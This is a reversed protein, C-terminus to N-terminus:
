SSEGDQNSIEKSLEWIKLAEVEQKSYRKREKSDIERQELLQLLLKQEIENM